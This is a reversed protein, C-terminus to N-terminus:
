SSCHFMSNGSLLRLEGRRVQFEAYVSHTGTTDGRTDLGGKYQDFGKLRVRQGLFDLFEDFAPSASESVPLM